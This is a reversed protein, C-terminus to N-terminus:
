ILVLWFSIFKLFDVIDYKFVFGLRFYRLDQSFDTRRTTPTKHSGDFDECNNGTGDVVERNDGDIFNDQKLEKEREKKRQSDPPLLCGGNSAVTSSAELRKKKM